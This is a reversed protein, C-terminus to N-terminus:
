VGFTEQGAVPLVVALQERGRVGLKLYVRSLQNEVTKATVFLAQAIERNSMGAAAQAAVRAESPTLAEVGTSARRRPRSGLARLETEAATALREAGCRHALDLAVRVEDEAATRRGNRREVRGLALRTRALELPARALLAASERLLPAAAGPTAAALARLSAGVSRDSGSRRADALESEALRVAEGPDTAVTLSALVGRWGSVAPNRTHLATMVTGCRRLDAMAETTRGAAARLRGRTEMLWAGTFSGSLGDDIVMTDVAVAIDTLGPRELLADISWILLPPLGFTLEGQTAVDYAARLEAECARLDGARGAILARLALGRVFGYVSGRRQAASVMAATAAAAEETLDLYALTAAAQPGWADAEPGSMLGGGALGHRALAAVTEPDELRCVAASSLLAAMLRAAASEGFAIQGLSEREADFVAALRPENSMMGARFVQLHAAAEPAVDRSEELARDVAALAADWRGGFMLAQVLEVWVQGRTVADAVLELAQGLSETARPDRLVSEARGLEFLTRAREVRPMSDALRRRLYTAASEPAGRTMALAAAPLLPETGGSGPATRLLHIAVEEVEQDAALLLAATRAHWTSRLGEPIEQYVSGQVIPHAVRLHGDSVLIGAAILSDAHLLVQEPTSATLAAIMVPTAHRGLVAVAQAVQTAAPAMRSLRLLTAHGVTRSTVRAVAAAGADDPRVASEDLSALLEGVLYPVGDTAALCAAVFADSPARGLREETLAGVATATLPAPRLVGVGAGTTLEALEAPASEGSRTALVVLVPLGDLRRTLFDLYRLSGPDSWQADDVTLLLPAEAALNATLWYLGRVVAARQDREATESIDTHTVVPAALQAAGSLLRSRRETDARNVLPELLQQAVGHSLERELAAGTAAATVFGAAAARSRFLRLLTSKGIGAPGDLLLTVGRGSRVSTIAQEIRDLERDRELPFGRHGPAVPTNM